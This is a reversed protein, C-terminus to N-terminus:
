PPIQRSLASRLTVPGLLGSPLLPTDKRFPNWTTSAIRQDAPRGQDGILRNPWLNAVKIELTNERPQVATTIDVVFPEKWLIGLDHGNLRVQALAAVQGLDLYLRPGSPDTAGGPGTTASPRPLSEASPVFTTTYTAVGSFYKVGPDPHRSWDSLMEFVLKEPAGRNPQFRVEWPRHLSQPAPLAGIAGALKQGATTTLEYRGAQWALLTLRDAPGAQIELPAPSTLRQHAEPM